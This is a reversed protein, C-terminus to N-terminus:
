LDGNLFMIEIFCSFFVISLIIFRIQKELSSKDKKKDIQFSTWFLGAPIFVCPIGFVGKIINHMTNWLMAGPEIILFTTLIGAAFLCVSYIRAPVEKAEKAAKEEETLEAPLEDELAPM